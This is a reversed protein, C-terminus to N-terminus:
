GNHMNHMRVMFDTLREAGDDAFCMELGEASQQAECAAREFMDTEYKAIADAPEKADIIGLALAAGDQMALNAGAGAVLMYPM